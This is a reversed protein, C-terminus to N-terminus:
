PTNGLFPPSVTPGKQSEQEESSDSGAEEQTSEQREPTKKKEESQKILIELNAKAPLLSPDNRLAERFYFDADKAATPDGQLAKGISHNGLRFLALARLQVPGGEELVYEKLGKEHDELRGQTLLQDNEAMKLQRSFFIRDAWSGWLGDMFFLSGGLLLIFVLLIM